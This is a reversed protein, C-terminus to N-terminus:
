DLFREWGEQSSQHDSQHTHEDKLLGKRAKGNFMMWYKKVQILKYQYKGDKLLDNVGKEILMLNRKGLSTKICKAFVLAAWKEHVMMPNGRTKTKNKLELSHKKRSLNSIKSLGSTAPYSASLITLIVAQGHVIYNSVGVMSCWVRGHWGHCVIGTMIVMIITLIDDNSYWWIIM